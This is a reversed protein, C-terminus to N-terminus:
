GRSLWLRCFVGGEQWGPTVLSLASLPAGGFSVVGVGAHGRVVIHDQCAPAWVSQFGAVWLQHGVSRVRAPILIHEAVALCQACSDLAVDGHTLWGGVKAFEVSLIGPTRRHRARGIYLM